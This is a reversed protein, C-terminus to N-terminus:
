GSYYYIEWSRSGAMISGHGGGCRGGEKGERGGVGGHFLCAEFDPRFQYSFCWNNIVDKSTLEMIYKLVWNM